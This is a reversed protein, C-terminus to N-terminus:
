EQSNRNTGGCCGLLDGIGFNFTGFAMDLNGDEDNSEIKEAQAFNRANYKQMDGQAYSISEKMELAIMHIMETFNCNMKHARMAVDHSAHMSVLGHLASGHCINVYKFRAALQEIQRYEPSMTFDGLDFKNAFLIISTKEFRKKLMSTKMDNLITRAYAITNVYRPDFVIIFAWNSCQVEAYLSNGPQGEGNNDITKEDSSQNTSNKDRSNRASYEYSQKEEYTKLSLLHLLNNPQGEAAKIDNELESGFENKLIKSVPILKDLAPMDRLQTVYHARLPGKIKSDKKAGKRAYNSKSILNRRFSTITSSIGSLSRLNTQKGNITSKFVKPVSRSRASAKQKPLMGIEASKRFFQGTFQGCLTSKGTGRAGLVCIHFIKTSDLPKVVIHNESVISSHESSSLQSM